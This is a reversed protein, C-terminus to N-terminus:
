HAGPGVVGLLHLAIVLAILGAVAVVIVTQAGRPRRPPAGPDTRRPHAPLDVSDDSRDPM